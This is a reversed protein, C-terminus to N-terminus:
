DRKHKTPDVLNYTSGKPAPPLPNGQTSTVEQRTESNRYQGSVPTPTGPPLRRTSPTSPKAMRIVEERGSTKRRRRDIQQIPLCRM